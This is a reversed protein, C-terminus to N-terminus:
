SVPVSSASPTFPQFGLEEEPMGFQSLKSKVAEVLRSHSLAVRQIEANLDRTIQQKSELVNHLKGKVQAELVPYLNAKGLVENLYADRKEGEEQLADLKKELLLNKFGSKQQVEFVAKKFEDYLDDREKKVFSFRQELVEHEWKLARLKEEVVLLHSKTIALDEKEGQYRQLESHLREVDLRAKRLPESMRKNEQAIEYMLKEDAQERKRMEAVEKKLSKILDLNNHTIDNYYNKIEAFAKEHAKMLQEIHLNKKEEISATELKRRAELQERVMKMRKEFNKHIESTKREYEGRLLTIARDQQQKSSKLYDEHSLEMEKLALKLARRDVKLEGEGARSDDQLLKLAREGETKSRTMEDQHEHLLHKVRQKYIMIEVQHKEELDQLEREKNRLESKKDELTKKEVIWFYNLKERQQQFENFDHDEKVTQKFIRDAEQTLAKREVEQAAKVPDVEEKAKKEKKGKGGKKGGKKAKAGM